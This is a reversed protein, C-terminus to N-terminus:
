HARQVNGARISVSKSGRLTFSTILQAQSAIMDRGGGGGGGKKKLAEFTGYTQM